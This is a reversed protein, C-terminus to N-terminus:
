SDTIRQWSLSEGDYCAVQKEGEYSAGITVFRKGGWRVQRSEHIHGQFVVRTSPSERVITEAFRQSGLFANLFRWKPPVLWRAPWFPLLSEVALHHLTVVTERVGLRELERLQAQLRMVQWACIERDSRNWRAYWADAWSAEQEGPFIKSCYAEDPIGPLDAFSFDYWGMVGAFGVDGVIVPAEDLPYFGCCRCLRCFDVYRGYSTRSDAEVWVDHNGAVVLKAGPFGDFQRLCAEVEADTNGSDGAIILVDHVTARETVWAALRVIVRDGSLSVGQHLDSAVYIMDVEKRRLSHNTFLLEDDLGFFRGSDLM